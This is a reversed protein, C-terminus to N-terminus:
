DKDRQKREGSFAAELLKLGVVVLILGVIATFVM